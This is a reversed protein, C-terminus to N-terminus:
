DPRQPPPREPWPSSRRRDRAIGLLGVALSGVGVVAAGALAPSRGQWTWHAWGLLGAFPTLALLVRWDDPFLLRHWLPRM